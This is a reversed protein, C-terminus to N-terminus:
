GSNAEKEELKKLAEKMVNLRDNYGHFGLIIPNACPNVYDV